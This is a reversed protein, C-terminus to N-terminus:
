GCFFALNKGIDMEYFIYFRSAEVSEIMKPYVETMPKNVTVEFVNNDTAGLNSYMLLGVVLVLIFLSKNM